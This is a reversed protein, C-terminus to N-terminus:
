LPYFIFMAIIRSPALRAFFAVFPLSCALRYRYRYRYCCLAAAAAPLLPLLLLLLLMLLLLLLLLLLLPMVAGTLWNVLWGVM